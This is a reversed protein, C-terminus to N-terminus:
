IYVLLDYQKCKQFLFTYIYRRVGRPALDQTSSNTKSVLGWKGVTLNHSVDRNRM